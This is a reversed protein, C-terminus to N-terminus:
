TILLSLVPSPYLAAEEVAAEGPTSLKTFEDSRINISSITSLSFISTIVITVGRTMSSQFESSSLSTSNI